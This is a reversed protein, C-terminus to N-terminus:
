YRYVASDLEPPRWGALEQPQQHDGEIEQAHPHSGPLEYKGSQGSLEKPSKCDSSGEVTKNKRSANQGQQDRYRRIYLLILLGIVLLVGVAVGVGIGAKAGISLGASDVNSKTSALMPRPGINLGYMAPVTVTLTNRSPSVTKTILSFSTDASGSATGSALSAYTVTNSNSASSLCKYKDPQSLTEFLLAYSALGARLTTTSSRSETGVFYVSCEKPATFPTTMPLYTTTTGNTTTPPHTTTM